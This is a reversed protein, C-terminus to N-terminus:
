NRGLLVKLRDEPLEYVINGNIGTMTEAAVLANIISEETAQVVAQFIPDLSENPLMRVSIGQGKTEKKLRATSFSLFFDGSSNRGLGGVRAIGLSARQAVRHLQHPLLPADTGIIVLISNGAPHETLPDIGHIEPMQDPIRRGVPVGAITLTERRGFNAQVLVGVIWGEPTLRSATGIGGKFQFCIMGTGGGVNGEPVRGSAAAQLAQFVHERKVHFGHIDNLRGDWTEGVVPLSAWGYRTGAPHYEKQQRWAIAAEHVAGVSHTNTLLIPEELFGSDSIWHTGTLEGNGNLSDFGAFVPRFKRGTPLIATVGTRVPGKGVELDGEGKILTAHGVLVGEVDTLANWQGPTGEFRVGVERARPKIAEKAPM